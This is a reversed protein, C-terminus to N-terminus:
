STFTSTNRLVYAPFFSEFSAALAPFFSLYEVLEIVLDLICILFFFFFFFLVVNRATNEFWRECNRQIVNRNLYVSACFFPEFCRKM